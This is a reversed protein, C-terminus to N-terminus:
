YQSRNRYRILTAAAMATGGTGVGGLVGLAFRQEHRVQRDHTVQDGPHLNQSVGTLASIGAVWFALFVVGAVVLGWRPLDVPPAWVDRIFWSQPRRGRLARRNTVIGATFGPLVLAAAVLAAPGTPVLTQGRLLGAILVGCWLVGALCLVDLLLLVRRSIM